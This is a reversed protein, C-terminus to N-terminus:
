KPSFLSIPKACRAIFPHIIQVPREDPIGFRADDQMQLNDKGGHILLYINLFIVRKPYSVNGRKLDMVQYSEWLKQKNEALM